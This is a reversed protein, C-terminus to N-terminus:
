LAFDPASTGEYDLRQIATREPGISGRINLLERMHDSISKLSDHKVEVLRRFIQGSLAQEQSAYKKRLYDWIFLAEEDELPILETLVAQSVTYFITQKALNYAYAWKQSSKKIPRISTTRQEKDSGKDDEKSPSLAQLRDLLNVDDDSENDSVSPQEGSITWFVNQNKLCRSVAFSWTRYNIWDLKEVELKEYKGSAM